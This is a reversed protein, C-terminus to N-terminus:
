FQDEFCTEHALYKYGGFIVGKVKKYTKLYDKLFTNKEPFVDSDLFLVLDFQANYVLNTRNKTRGLNENNIQFRCNQLSNIKSNEEVCRQSFDDQVIIEYMIELEDAQKKLEKILSFCDYNYTPILISLM